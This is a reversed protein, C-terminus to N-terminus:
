IWRGSSRAAFLTTLWSFRITSKFSLLRLGRLSALLVTKVHNLDVERSRSDRAFERDVLDDLPLAPYRSDAVASPSPVLEFQGPTVNRLTGRRVDFHPDVIRSRGQGWNSTSCDLSSRGVSGFRPSDTLRRPSGAATLRPLHPTSWRDGRDLSRPWSRTRVGDRLSRLSM